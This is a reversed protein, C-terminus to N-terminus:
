KVNLSSEGILFGDAYVKFKLLGKEFKKNQPQYNLNMRMSTREYNIVEQFTYPISNGEFEFVGSPQRIDTAISGDPKIVQIYLDKNGTAAVANDLVTFQIKLINLRGAKFEEEADSEKGNGKVNVYRFNAAKLIAAVNVKGQLADKEQSLQQNKSEVVEKEKSIVEKESSIEAIQNKLGEIEVEYRKITKEMADIKAVYEEAKQVNIKGDRLLKEIQLKKKKLEEDKQAILKDKEQSDLDKRGIDEQMSTLENELQTIENELQESSEIYAELEQQNKFREALLWGIISLLIIFAAVIVIKLSINPKM